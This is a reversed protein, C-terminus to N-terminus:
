SARRRIVKKDLDTYKMMPIGSAFSVCNAIVFSKTVRWYRAENEVWRNHAPLLGSHRPIRHVGKIRPQQRITAM